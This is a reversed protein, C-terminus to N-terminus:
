SKRSRNSCEPGKMDQSSEPDLSRIAQGALDSVKQVDTKGNIHVRVETGDDLLRNLDPRFRTARLQGALRAALGRVAADESRFYQALYETAGHTKLLGPRVQALRGLGWLVGQQLPPHELFNGDERTYSILMDVFEDALGEHRTLIEGLVEAAGWPINGSEETMNWILQRVVVRASELDNCALGAVLIGLARVARWRIEDDRNIFSLLPRVLRRGPYLSLLDRLAADFDSSKLAEYVLRRLAKGRARGPPAPTRQIDEMM